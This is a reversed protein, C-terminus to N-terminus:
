AVPDRYAVERVHAEVDALLERVGPSLRAGPRTIVSAKPFYRAHTCASPLYTDGLGAVVLSSPASRTVM